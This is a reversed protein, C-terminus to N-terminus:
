VQQLTLKRTFLRLMLPPDSLMWEFCASYCLELNVSMKCIQLQFLFLRFRYQIHIDASYFHNSTINGCCTCLLGVQKIIHCIRTITKCDYYSWLHGDVLRMLMLSDVSKKRKKNKLMKKFQSRYKCLIKSRTIYVNCKYQVFISLVTGIRSQKVFLRIVTPKNTKKKKICFQLVKFM